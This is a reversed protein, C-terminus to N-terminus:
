HIKNKLIYFKFLTRFTLVTYVTYNWRGMDEAQKKNKGDWEEMREIKKRLFISITVQETETFKAKKLTDTYGPLWEMYLVEQNNKITCLVGNHTHTNYNIIIFLETM